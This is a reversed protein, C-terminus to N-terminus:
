PGDNWLVEPGRHVCYTISPRATLGVQGHFITGAEAMAERRRIAIRCSREPM